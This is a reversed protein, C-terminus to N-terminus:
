LNRLHSRKVVLLPQAPAAASLVAPSRGVDLVSREGALGRWQTHGTGAWRPPPLAALQLSYAPWHAFLLESWTM